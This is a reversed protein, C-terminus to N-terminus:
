AITILAGKNEKKAQELFARLAEYYPLLYVLPNEEEPDFDWFSYIRAEIMTKPDYRKRLDETSITSLANAWNAIQDPRLARPPGDLYTEPDLMEGGKVMYCLPEEGEWASGTLLFHIGHWAKDLYVFTRAAENSEVPKAEEESSNLASESNALLENIEEESVATLGCCLSM